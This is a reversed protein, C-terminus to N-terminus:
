KITPRKAALIMEEIHGKRKEIFFEITEMLYGLIKM